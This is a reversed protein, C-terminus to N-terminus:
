ELNAHKSLMRESGLGSREAIRLVIAELLVLMSQEFLSGRPQVSPNERAAASKLVAAPIRLNLDAMKGIASRPQTTVVAIGAGFERAKAVM